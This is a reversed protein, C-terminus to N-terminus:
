LLYPMIESGHEALCLDLDLQLKSACLPHMTAFAHGKVEIMSLPNTRTAFEGCVDCMNFAGVPPKIEGKDKLIKMNKVCDMHMWFVIFNDDDKCIRVAVESDIFSGCLSCIKQSHKALSCVRATKVHEFEFAGVCLVGRVM